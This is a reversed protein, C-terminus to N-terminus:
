VLPTNFYLAVFIYLVEYTLGFESYLTLGFPLRYVVTKLFVM